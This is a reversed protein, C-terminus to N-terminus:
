AKCYIVKLWVYNCRFRRHYIPPQLLQLKKTCFRFVTSFFMFVLGRRVQTVVGEFLWPLFTDHIETALPDPFFGESDLSQFVEGLVQSRAAGRKYM